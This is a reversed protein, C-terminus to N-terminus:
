SGLRVFPILQLLFRVSVASIIMTIAQPFGVLSMIDIAEAPLMSLYPKLDIPSLLSGLGNILSIVFTLLVDVGGLGLNTLMVVLTNILRGLFEVFTNFLSVVWDFM